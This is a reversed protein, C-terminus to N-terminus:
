DLPHNDKTMIRNNNKIYDLQYYVETNVIEKGSTEGPIWKFPNAKILKYAYEDYGQGIGRWIKPDIVNGDKAVVFVLTVKSDKKSSAPAAKGLKENNAAIWETFEKTPSPKIKLVSGQYSYIADNQAFIKITSLLLFIIITLNKM